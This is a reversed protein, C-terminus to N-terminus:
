GPRSCPSSSATPFAKGKVFNSFGAWMEGTPLAFTDTKVFTNLKFSNILVSLVPLVYIICIVALIASLIAKNRRSASSNSM